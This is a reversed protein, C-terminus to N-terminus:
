QKKGCQGCFKASAPISRQCHACETLAPEEPAGETEVAAEEPAVDTEVVTEVRLAIKELAKASAWPLEGFSYIM